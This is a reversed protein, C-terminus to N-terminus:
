EIQDLDQLVVENDLEYQIQQVMIRRKKINKFISVMKDHTNMFPMIQQLLGVTNGHDICDFKSVIKQWVTKAIHLDQFLLLLTQLGRMFIPELNSDNNFQLKTIQYNLQDKSFITPNEKINFDKGSIFMKTKQWDVQKEGQM